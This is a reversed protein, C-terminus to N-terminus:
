NFTKKEEHIRKLQEPLLNFLKDGAYYPKKEHLSTRHAYLSTNLKGCLNDVHSAWTLKSDIIVGFYKAESELEIDPLEPLDTTRNGSNVQQTKKKNLVLFNNQCYQKAM